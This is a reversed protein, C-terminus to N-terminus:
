DTEFGADAVALALQAPSSQAPDFEIIAQAKELSVEVKGVGPLKHLVGTVTKVCGGCSMGGVKIVAKEM